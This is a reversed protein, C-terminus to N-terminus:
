AFDQQELSKLTIEVNSATFGGKRSQKKFWVPAKEPHCKWCDAEAELIGEKVCGSCQKWSKDSSTSKLKNCVGKHRKACNKCPPIETSALVVEKGSNADASGGIKKKGINSLKQIESIEKCVQEFNNPDKSKLHDMIIKMLQQNQTKKLM